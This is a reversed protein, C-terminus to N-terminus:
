SLNENHKYFRYDAYFKFNFLSRHLSLKKFFYDWCFGIIELPLFGILYILFFLIVFPSLLILGLYDTLIESTTKM